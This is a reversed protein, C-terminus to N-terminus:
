LGDADNDTTERDTTERDEVKVHVPASEFEGKENKNESGANGEM